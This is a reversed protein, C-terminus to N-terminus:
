YKRPKIRGNTELFQKSEELTAEVGTAEFLKQMIQAQYDGVHTTRCENKLRSDDIGVGHRSRQKRNDDM